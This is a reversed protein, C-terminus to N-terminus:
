DSKSVVKNRNSTAEDSVEDKSKVTLTNLCSSVVVADVNVFVKELGAVLSVNKVRSYEPKEKADPAVVANSKWFSMSPLTSTVMPPSAPYSTLKEDRLKVVGSGPVATPMAESPRM